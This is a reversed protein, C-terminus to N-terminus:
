LNKPPVFLLFCAALLATSKEKMPYIGLLSIYAFLHYFIGSFSSNNSYARPIDQAQKRTSLLSQLQPPNESTAPLIYDLHNYAFDTIRIETM